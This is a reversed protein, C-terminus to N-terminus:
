SRRQGDEVWLHSPSATARPPRTNVMRRSPARATPQTTTDILTHIELRSAAQDAAPLQQNTM